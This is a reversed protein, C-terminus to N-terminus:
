GQFIIRHFVLSLPKRPHLTRRLPPSNAKPIDKQPPPKPQKRSFDSSFTSRIHRYLQPPPIYKPGQIFNSESVEFFNIEPNLESLYGGIRLWGFFPKVQVWSPQHTGVITIFPRIVPRIFPYSPNYGRYTSNYCQKYSNPPGGQQSSPANLFPFSLKVLLHAIFLRCVGPQYTNSKGRCLQPFSGLRRANTWNPPEVM